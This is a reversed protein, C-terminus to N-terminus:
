LQHAPKHKRVITAKLKNLTWGNANKKLDAKKLQYQYFEDLDFLDTWPMFGQQLQENTLQDQYVEEHEHTADEDFVNSSPLTRYWVLKM